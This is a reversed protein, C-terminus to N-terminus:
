QLEEQKQRNRDLIQAHRLHPRSIQSLRDEKRILSPQHREKHNLRPDHNPHHFLEPPPLASGAPNRKKCAGGHKQHLLRVCRM